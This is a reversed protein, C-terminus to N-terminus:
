CTNYKFLAFFKKFVKIKKFKVKVLTTNSDSYDALKEGTPESKVKVLTTNSNM